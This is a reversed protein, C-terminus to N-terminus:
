FHWLVCDYLKIRANKLYCLAKFWTKIMEKLGPGIANRESILCM